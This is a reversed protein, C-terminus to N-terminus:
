GTAGDPNTGKFAEMWVRVAPLDHALRQLSDLMTQIENPKSGMQMAIEKISLGKGRHLWWATAWTGARKTGVCPGWVSLPHEGVSLTMWIGVMGTKYHTSQPALGIVRVHQQHNTRLLHIARKLRPDRASSTLTAQVGHEITSTAAGMWNAVRDMPQNLGATLWWALLGFGPNLCGNVTPKLLVSADMDLAHQVESIARAWTFFPQERFKLPSSPCPHDAHITM